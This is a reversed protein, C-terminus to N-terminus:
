LSAAEDYGLWCRTGLCKVDLVLGNLRERWGGIGGGDDTRRLAPLGTSNLGCINDRDAAVPKAAPPPAPVVAAANRARAAVARPLGSSEVWMEAKVVKRLPRSVFPRVPPNSQSCQYPVCSATDASSLMTDLLKLPVACPEGVKVASRPNVPDCPLEVTKISLPKLEVVAVDGCNVVLEPWIEAQLTVLMPDSLLPRMPVRAALLVM